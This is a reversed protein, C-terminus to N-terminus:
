KAPKNSPSPCRERGANPLVEKSMIKFGLITKVECM